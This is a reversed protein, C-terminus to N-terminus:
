KWFSVDALHELVHRATATVPRHTLFDDPKLWLTHWGTAHRPTVDAVRLHFVRYVYRKTRQDRGSRLYVQPPVDLVVPRPFQSPPLPRGLAKAAARVAADQSTEGAEGPVTQRRQRAAPLGFADWKPNYEALLLGAREVLVVAVEVLPFDSAASM